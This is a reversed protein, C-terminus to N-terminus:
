ARELYGNGVVKLQAREVQGPAFEALREPLARVVCGERVHGAITSQGEALSYIREADFGGNYLLPVVECFHMADQWASSSRELWAGDSWVDFVRFSLRGADHDYKLDQVQGYVEGYLARGPYARCWEGIGANQEVVRSWVTPVGAKKWRTRSGLHLVGDLFVFRASCGHIKETVIVHEGEAFVGPYKRLPEVDYVPFFGTPPSADEGATSAPEPPEYRVIGLLGMVDDGEAAGEPARILLGQSYVGRLRKVKIRRKDGLFAFPESAPVVYDPEIYAALDGEHFDGLRVACVYGGIQVLGLSDANPHKEIAGLRVVDVRHTSM